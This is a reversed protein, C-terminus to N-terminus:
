IVFLSNTKTKFDVTHMFIIKIYVMHIFHLLPM